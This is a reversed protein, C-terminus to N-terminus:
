HQPGTPNAAALKQGVLALLPANAFQFLLACVAFIALTRMKALAFWGTPRFASPTGEDPVGGGGPLPDAGGRARAHDIADGPIALVAAAAMCGFLPVLLFVARQTFWYGVAGAVLAIVVNGSHDFAGNRGTRRALTERTYLGLTIAAIAPAFVDGVVAMLTNAIFVPWFTPALFIITAGAALAAIAGVVIARKAKLGDIAMGIPLQFLLGLLGGVMTM